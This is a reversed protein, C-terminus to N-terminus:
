NFLVLRLDAVEHLGAAEYAGRAASNERAHHLGVREVRKLLLSCLSAV